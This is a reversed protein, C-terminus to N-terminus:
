NLPIEIYVEVNYKYDNINRIDLSGNYYRVFKSINYGGIGTNANKGAKVGSLLFTDSTIGDTLQKGDNKISIILSQKIKNYGLEILVKGEVAGNDFGHRIANGITDELVRYISKTNTKLQPNIAELNNDLIFDLQIHNPITITPSKIWNQITPIIALKQNDKEMINEGMRDLDENILELSKGMNQASKLLLDKNIDDKAVLRNILAVSSSINVLNQRISHRYIAVENRLQTRLIKIEESMDSIRIALDDQKKLSAIRKQDELNDPLLIYLRRFSPGDIKDKFQIHGLQERMYSENMQLVFYDLDVKNQDFCIGFINNDNAHYTGGTDKINNVKLIRHPHNREIALHNERLDLVDGRRNNTTKWFTIDDYDIQYKMGQFIHPIHEITKTKGFTAITLADLYSSNNDGDDIRMQTFNAFLNEYSGLIPKCLDFIRVAKYGKKQPKNVDTSQININYEKNFSVQRSIDTIDGNEKTIYIIQEYSALLEAYSLQKLKGNSEFLFGDRRKNSKSLKLYSNDTYEEKRDFFETILRNELIYKRLDKSLNDPHVHICIYGDEKIQDEIKRFSFLDIETYIFALDVPETLDDFSKLELNPKIDTPYLECIVNYLINGLIITKIGKKTSYYALDSNDTLIIQENNNKSLLSEWIDETTGTCMYNQWYRVIDNPDMSKLAIITEKINAKKTADIDKFTNKTLYNFLIQSYKNEKNDIFGENITDVINSSDSVKKNDMFGNTVLSSLFLLDSFSLFDPSLEESDDKSPVYFRISNMTNKLAEDDFIKM